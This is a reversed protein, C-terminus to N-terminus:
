GQFLRHFTTLGEATGILFLRAGSPLVADAPPNVQFQGGDNWAVVTLGTRAGIQSEALTRGALGEPVVEELLEVGEGLLVMPRNRAISSVTQVGLSVFSLVLDAGARRISEVNREHTVRSVIRLDPNLKRCYVALYVNTADDNTTLLVAPAEHIGAEELTELNAADGVIMRDPLNEWRKALWEQKELLHVPVGKRKLARTASRGVKGGGIVIVPNWNTDYIFLLEDLEKMQKRSGVVVPLAHETLIRDPHVPHLEGNEWIGVVTLGLLERLRTERITKGSLPTNQVPFEAIVLEGFEGIVHTEAHGANIRGALQEGLQKRLALVRTAGALELIDMADESSAVAAIPVEPAVERVTLIINTNTRDDLNALILRAQAARARLYTEQSDVEGSMVHVGERHLRAARERDPDLFVYPIEHARFQAILGPGLEDFACVLVHNSVEESVERPATSRVRAELWPGAVYSLFIYPLIILLLVVGSLLVFVSFGRGLDTHFTIDGFGLTSMTVVTWYFGSIWSHEQGEFRIMLFQFAVTYLVMVLLLFVMFRVLPATNRRMETERLFVALQAGLTKIV